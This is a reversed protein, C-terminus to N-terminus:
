AFIKFHHLYHKALILEDNALSPFVIRRLEELKNAHKPLINSIIFGNLLTFNYTFEINIM